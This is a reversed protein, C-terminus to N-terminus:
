RATKFLDDPSGLKERGKGAEGCHRLGIGGPGDPLVAGARFHPKQWQWLLGCCLKPMSGTIELPLSSRRIPLVAGEAAVPEGREMRQDEIKQVEGGPTQIRRIRPDGAGGTDAHAAGGAPEGLQSRGSHQIPKAATALIM